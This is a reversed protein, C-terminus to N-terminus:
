GALGSRALGPRNTCIGDVGLDALVQMRALDDVTWAYVRGGWDHVAATLARDILPAEQWLERAGANELQELPRVPYSSSLIGFELEPRATRLRRVIRHDFSHFHCQQPAPSRDIVEFLRRDVGPALTKVEIFATQDPGIAALAEALTPIAEGNQLTHMRVDRLPLKAIAQGALMGDHRVVLEGDATAHVDLEIGDAGDRVARRFAALSNEM